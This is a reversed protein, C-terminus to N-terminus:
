RNIIKKTTIKGDNSINRKIYIGKEPNSLRRGYLDIYDQSDKLESTFEFIGSTSNEVTETTTEGTNIDFTVINSETIEDGNLYVAQVGVTDFGEVYVGVDFSTSLTSIKYIDNGNTFTYPLLTTPETIGAYKIIPFGYVPDIGEEQVFTYPTGDFLVRYYLNDTDLLTWETSYPLINFVVDNFGTWDYYATTFFVNAPDRPIGNFDYQRAIEFGSIAILPNIYENGANISLYMNTDVPIFRPDVMANGPLYVMYYGMTDPAFILQDTTANNENGLRNLYLAKTFIFYDSYIGLFQNQPIYVLGNEPDFDGKLIAEPMMESFNLIYVNADTFGIKLKYGLDGALLAYDQLEIDEPLTVPVDNFPTYEQTFDGVGFLWGDDDSWLYGLAYEPLDNVDYSGNFQKGPMELKINGTIPDYDLTISTISLDLVYNPDGYSDTGNLKLAVLNANYDGYEEDDRVEMVSQPLDIIIKNDDTLTGKVYTDTVVLSIFNYFYITNDDGWVTKAPIDDFMVPQNWKYLGNISKVYYQERGQAEYIVPTMPSSRFADRNSVKKVDTSVKDNKYAYDEFIETRPSLSPLQKASMEFGTAFISSALTLSFILTKNPIM